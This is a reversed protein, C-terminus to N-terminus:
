LPVPDGAFAFVRTPTRLWRCVDLLKLLDPPLPGGHHFLVLAESGVAVRVCARLHDAHPGFHGCGGLGGGNGGLEAQALEAAARFVPEAWVGHVAVRHTRRKHTLLQRLKNRVFREVGPPDYRRPAVVGLYFVPKTPRPLHDPHSV